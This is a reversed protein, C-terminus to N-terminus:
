TDVNTNQAKVACLLKGNKFRQNKLTKFFHISTVVNCRRKADNLSMPAFTAVRKLVIQLYYITILSGLKNSVSEYM